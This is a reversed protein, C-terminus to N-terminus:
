VRQTDARWNRIRKKISQRGRVEGALVSRILEPVEEDSAFRIAILQGTSLDAIRPRMEPPLVRWLRVTEEVRIIRDQNKTAYFRVIVALAALALAMVANWVALWSFWRVAVVIMVIANISTVPLIFFHFVPHWRAHNELTQIPNSSM